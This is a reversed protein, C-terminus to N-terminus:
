LAVLWVGTGGLFLPYLTLWALSCHMSIPITMVAGHVARSHGTKPLLPLMFYFSLACQYELEIISMYANSHTKKKKEGKSIHNPVM